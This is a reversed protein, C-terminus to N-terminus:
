RLQHVTTNQTTNTLLLVCLPVTNQMIMFGKTHKMLKCSNTSSNVVPLRKPALLKLLQRAAVVDHPLGSYAKCLQLYTKYTLCFTSKVQLHAHSWLLENLMCDHIIDSAFLRIIQIFQGLRDEVRSHKCTHSWCLVCCQLQVQSFLKSPKSFHLRTSKV